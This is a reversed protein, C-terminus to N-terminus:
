YVLKSHSLTKAEDELSDEVVWKQAQEPSGLEDGAHGSCCSHVIQSCPKVEVVTGHGWGGTWHDAETVPGFDEVPGFEEVTSVM